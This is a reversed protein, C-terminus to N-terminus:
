IKIKEEITQKLSEMRNDWWYPIIILQIGFQKCLNQKEVDRNQYMELPAFGSPIDEYHHKGHYEIAINRDVLYIDFQIKLGTQREIQSHFYDEVIEEGPFLKQIQLFLWRQSSRGRLTNSLINLIDPYKLQIQKKLTDNKLFQTIFGFGGNEYIQTKSIRKWDDSTKLDYKVKLQEIFNQVNEENDWYGPPKIQQFFFSKGEPCGLCKIDFISFQQLLKRGGISIIQNQNLLNWDEPTHLQYNLKLKDIFNQINEKNNWYNSSNPPKKFRNKGEPFGLCKIDYMSHKKFLGIGGHDQIHKKKLNNWDDFTKLNLKEGVNTIFIQINEKDDWYGSSKKLSPDIFKEKEEPFGLCKIEYLSLKKLLENGGLLKINEKDISNWQDFTHLNLQKKLKEIFNLINEEKSWFTNNRRSFRNKGDPFGMCKIDYLSYNNLLGIGGYEKIEKKTISNWDNITNLNLNNKLNNLFEDINEQKKWYNSPKKPKDYFEKGEPYGLCKIEFISYKNLLMKGGLSQIQQITISNWDSPTKLNLKNQMENLFHNINEQKEWYGPKKQNTEHIFKLKGEPCGLIKIEYISYKKLLRSGGNSIIQNTTISNWDDPTQLNLTGKLKYLFQEINEKKEWYKSPVKAPVKSHFNSRFLFQSPLNRVYIKRM